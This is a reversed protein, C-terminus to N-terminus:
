RKIYAVIITGVVSVLGTGMAIAIGIIIKKHWFDLYEVKTRTETLKDLRDFIKIENDRSNNNKEKLDEVGNKIISSISKLEAKLLRTNAECLDKTIYMETM